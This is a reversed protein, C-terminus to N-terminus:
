VRLLMNQNKYRYIPTNVTSNFSKKGPSKSFIKEISSETKIFNLFFKALDQRRFNVPGLGNGLARHFLV